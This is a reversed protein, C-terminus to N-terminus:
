EYYIRTIIVDDIDFTLEGTECDLDFDARPYLEPEFDVKQTVSYKKWSGSTDLEEGKKWLLGVSATGMPNYGNWINKHLRYEFDIRVEDEYHKIGELVPSTLSANGTEYISTGWASLHAYADTGEKFIKVKGNSEWKRWGKPVEYWKLGEFGEEILVQEKRQLEPGSPSSSCSILLFM